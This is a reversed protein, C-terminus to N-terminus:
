KEDGKIEEESLKYILIMQLSWLIISIIALIIFMISEM